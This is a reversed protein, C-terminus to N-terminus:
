TFASVNKGDIKRVNNTRETYKVNTTREKWMSAIMNSKASTYVLVFTVKVATNDESRGRGTDRMM